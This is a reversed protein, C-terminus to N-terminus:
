RLPRRPGGMGRLEAAIAFARDGLKEVRRVIDMFLLEVRAEAGAGLRRRANRDLADRMGNITMELDKARDFSETEGPVGVHLRLFALFDRLLLLYSGLAQRHRRDLFTGKRAAKAVIRVLANCDDTMDELEGVIRLLRWVRDVEVDSSLGQACDLLYRSLDERVRDARAEEEKSGEAAQPLAEEDPRALLGRFREFMGETLVVLLRIEREARLVSPDEVEREGLPFGRREGPSLGRRVWPLASLAGLGYCATEFVALVFSLSPGLVRIDPAFVLIVMGWALAGTAVLGQFGASRPAPSRRLRGVLIPRWAEGARAALLAAAASSAALEGRSGIVLAVAIVLGAGGGLYAIGFAAAPVAFAIAGGRLIPPVPFAEPVESLCALGFALLGFAIVTPGFGRLRRSFRSVVFGAGVAALLLPPYGFAGLAAAIIWTRACLGLAAGLCAAGLNAAGLGAPGLRSPSLLLDFSAGPLAGGRLSQLASAAAARGAVSLGRIQVTPALFRRLLGEAGSRTGRSLAASAYLFLAAGGAAQLAPELYYM